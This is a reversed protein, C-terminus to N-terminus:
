VWPQLLPLITSLQKEYRRWQGVGEPYLGRRVQNSSASRITRSRASNDFDRMAENWEMGLFRCIAPVRNEFDSVIDEYRCELVDLPLRSRCIEAVRMVSDYFRAAGALTLLEFTVPRVEIHRRFCSLIVDRPDRVLFVVKASPFLTAILPLNLTNFPQKDVFFKGEPRAGFGRVRQWYTERAHDLEDGRWRIEDSAAGGPLAASLSAFTEREELSEVDSRSALVQELLTTGSRMFGLLFIHQRAPSPAPAAEASQAMGTEAVAAILRQVRNLPRLEGEFREKYLNRLIDNKAAYAEFAAERRDQGDLADGLLGLALARTQEDTHTELLLADLRTEARVFELNLLDCMSLAIAATAHTPVARLAREAFLRAKATEGGRAASAALAALADAHAPQLAIAREHSRLAAALEGAASHACGKHYHTQARAPAIRIAADFAAIAKAFRNLRILTLGIADLLDPDRPALAFANRLENLAEAHCQRQEFWRARAAHFAPHRLGEGLAATAIENERAPDTAAALARLHTETERARPEM